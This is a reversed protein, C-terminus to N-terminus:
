LRGRLRSRAEILRRNQEAFSIAAPAPNLNLVRLNDARETSSPERPPTPPRMNARLAATRATDRADSRPRRAQVAAIIRANLDPPSPVRDIPPALSAPTTTPMAKLARQKCDDCLNGFRDSECCIRGHSVRFQYKM